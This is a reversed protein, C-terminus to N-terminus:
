DEALNGKAKSIIKIKRYEKTTWAPIVSWFHKNGNGVQRVIVKIRSGKMIAVFGWYRARKTEILARKRRKVKMDVLSEDYEQHTTTIRILEIAKPILKFKCIQDAKSRESNGKKYILHNFGESTFHVIEGGFAPCRVPKQAKYYRQTREKIIEYNSVDSMIFYNLVYEMKYGIGFCFDSAM